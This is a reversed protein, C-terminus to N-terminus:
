ASTKWKQREAETRADEALIDNRLQAMADGASASSTNANNNQIPLSSYSPAQNSTNIMSYQNQQQQSNNSGGAQDVAGRFNSSRAYVADAQQRVNEVQGRLQTLEDNKRSVENELAQCQNQFRVKEEAAVRLPGLQTTAEELQKQVYELQDKVRALEERSSSLSNCENTLYEIKENADRIQKEKAHFGTSVTAARTRSEQLEKDLRSIIEANKKQRDAGERVAKQLEAILTFLSSEDNDKISVSSRVADLETTLDGIKKEYDAKMKTENESFEARIKEREIDVAAVISVRAAECQAQSEQLRVTANESNNKYGQMESELQAVKATLNELEGNKANLTETQETLKGELASILAASESDTLITDSQKLGPVAASQPRENEPIPNHLRQVEFVTQVPFPQEHAYIDKTTNMNTQVYGASTPPLPSRSLTREYIRDRLSRCQSANGVVSPSGANNRFGSYHLSSTNNNNNNSGDANNQQQQHLEYVPVGAASITSNNTAANQQAPANNRDRLRAQLSALSAPDALVNPRPPKNNIASSM